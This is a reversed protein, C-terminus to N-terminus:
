GTQLYDKIFSPAEKATTPKATQPKDAFTKVYDSLAQNIKKSNVDKFCVIYLTDKSLKQKYLRYVENQYEFDGSVREYNMQDAAYPVALPVKITMMEANSILDRDLNENAEHAYKLKLGLFVGYFGVTNLLILAILISTVLKKM